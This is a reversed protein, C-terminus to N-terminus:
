LKKVNEYSLWFLLFDDFDCKTYFDIESLNGFTIFHNQGFLRDKDRNNICVNYVDSNKDKMTKM